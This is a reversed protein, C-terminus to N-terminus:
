RALMRMKHHARHATWKPGSRNLAKMVAIRALMTPGSRSVRMLAEIAAQWEPLDSEKKPLSTIYDAADRLTVLKKGDPLAIPDEFKRQWDNDAMLRVSGRAATFKVFTGSDHLELWGRAIALRKDGQPRSAVTGERSQFDPARGAPEGERAVGSNHNTADARGSRLPIGGFSTALADFAPATTAGKKDHQRMKKYAKPSAQTSRAIPHDLETSNNWFKTSSPSAKPITRRLWTEAADANAFVKIHDTM